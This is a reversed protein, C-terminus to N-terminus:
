SAFLSLEPLELRRRLLQRRLRERSREVEAEELRSRLRVLAAELQAGLEERDRGSLRGAAAAMMQRDLTALEVEVAEPARTTASSVLDGLRASLRDREGAPLVTEDLKQVTARLLKLRDEVGNEAPTSAAPGARRGQEAGRLERTENWAEEVARACYRLGGVPRQPDREARRAFVEELTREVLELPIGRRRWERALRWDAPSLLLPAGRLRIFTDELARFYAHDRASGEPPGDEAM